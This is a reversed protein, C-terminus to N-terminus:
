HKRNQMICNKLSSISQHYHNSKFIYHGCVFIHASSLLVVTQRNVGGDVQIRAKSGQRHLENQLKQIKSVQSKMLTQGSFGPEVLMILIFDVDHLLHFIDEIKTNPKVALGSLVNM